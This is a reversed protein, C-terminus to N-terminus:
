SELKVTVINDSILRFVLTSWCTDSHVTGIEHGNICHANAENRPQYGCCGFVAKEKIVFAVDKENLLIDGSTFATLQGDESLYHCSPSKNTFFDGYSWNTSLLVYHGKELAHEGSKFSLKSEDVNKLFDTLDVQCTKCLFASYM